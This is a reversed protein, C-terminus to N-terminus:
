FVINGCIRLPDLTHLRIRVALGIACDCCCDDDVVLPVSIYVREVHVEVGVIVTAVHEADLVQVEPVVHAVPVNLLM